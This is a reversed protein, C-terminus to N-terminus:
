EGHTYPDCAYWARTSKHTIFTSAYWNSASKFCEVALAYEKREMHEKGKMLHVEATNLNKGGGGGVMGGILSMAAGDGADDKEMM